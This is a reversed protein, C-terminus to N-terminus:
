ENKQLSEILQNLWENLKNCKKIEKDIQEKYQQVMKINIEISNLLPDTPKKPILPENCDYEISSKLQELMFNKLNEHSPSPPEWAQVKDLMESYRKKLEEVQICKEKYKQLNEEYTKEVKELFTKEKGKEKYITVLDFLECEVYALREQLYTINPEFSFTKMKDWDIFIDENYRIPIFTKACKLVFERFSVPNEKTQNMICATYSTAM